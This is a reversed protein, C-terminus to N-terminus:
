GPIRGYPANSRIVECEKVAVEGGHIDEFHLGERPVFVSHRTRVAFNDIRPRWGAWEVSEANCSADGFGQCLLAEEAGELDDGTDKGEERREPSQLQEGHVGIIGQPVVSLRGNYRWVELHALETQVGRMEARRALVDIVDVDGERGM